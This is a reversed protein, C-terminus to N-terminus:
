HKTLSKTGKPNISHDVSGGFRSLKAQPLKEEPRLWDAGCFRNCKRHTEFFFANVGAGGIDTPGMLGGNKTMTLFAPDSLSFCRGDFTGQIDVMMFTGNSIHYSYHSLAQTVERQFAPVEKNVYDFNNTWKVWKGELYPEVFM